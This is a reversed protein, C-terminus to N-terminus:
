QADEVAQRMKRAIRRRKTMACAKSNYGPHAARFRRSSERERERLRARNKSKYAVQKMYDCDKCRSMRGDSKSKCRHFHEVPLIRECGFCFKEGPQLVPKIPRPTSGRKRQCWERNYARMCETCYTHTARRPAKHCRCCLNSTMNAYHGKAM